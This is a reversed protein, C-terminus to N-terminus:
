GPHTTPKQTDLYQRIGEAFLLESLRSVIESSARRGHMMETAAFRMSADIWERTACERIDVTLVSPLAEILPNYVEDTALFGCVVQTLAGGGGIVLRSLGPSEGSEIFPAPKVPVLGAASAMVHRENRPVLIIEGARATVLEGGAIGVQLDGSVVYHYSIIRSPRDFFPRCEEDTVQSYICWPATMRADLFIGGKLRISRLVDSVADM